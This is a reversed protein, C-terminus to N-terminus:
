DRYGGEKDEQRDRVRKKVQEIAQDILRQRLSPSIEREPPTTGELSAQGPGNPAKRTEEIQKRVTRIGPQHGIEDYIALARRYYNVAEAREGKLRYVEALNNLAIAMELKQGAAEAFMIAERLREQAAEYRGARAASRAENILLLTADLEASSGHPEPALFLTLVGFVFTVKWFPGRRAM